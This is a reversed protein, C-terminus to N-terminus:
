DTLNSKKDIFSKPTLIHRAKFLRTFHSQSKFGARFSAEGINLGGKEILFRAREVRKELIWKMPSTKLQSAFETKFASLSRGSRKAFEAISWNQM